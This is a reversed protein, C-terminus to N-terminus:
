DSRATVGLYGAAADAVVNTTETTLHGEVADVDAHKLTTISWPSAYSERPLGGRKFDADSLPVAVSRRTTSVAVFLGEESGFPHTEDSILIWPRHRHGGLVDPGKVVAGRDYM